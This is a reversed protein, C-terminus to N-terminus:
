ESEETTIKVNRWYDGRQWPEFIRTPEIVGPEPLGDPRAYPAPKLAIFALSVGNPDSPDVAMAAVIYEHDPLDPEDDARRNRWGLM